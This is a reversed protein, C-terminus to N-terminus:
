QLEFTKTIFVAMQGRTVPATPCYNAGGCGATIERAVLDYIWPAFPNTCPVDGFIAAACAPPAYGPGELARLLFAAMQQRLVPDTPCYLGAGCGATIGEAVLEYIWPAFPNSCPVDAFTANTCPPPVYCLGHKAKILFVAMQQRLTPQDVGYIGGGVGTAIANQVLTTVYAYYPQDPPVDLFDAVWGNRLTGTSDDLNQVSVDTVAGAPLSPTSVTITHEDIVVVDSAVQGGFRVLAGEAFGIGTLTAATSGAPPGSGPTMAFVMRPSFESTNGLADTATATVLFGPDLTGAVTLDFSVNGSGDTTVGAHGLYVQGQEFDHPHALCPPNGYFDLTYATSPASRLSGVVRTGTGSTLASASTVIPYNQKLNPGDDGDASDNFDIGDNGNDVAYHRNEFMSNGRITIRTGFNRIGGAGPPQGAGEGLNFAVVNGEGAAVGGIQVDTTDEASLVIATYHNPLPAAGTIDTGMRNGLIRVNSALSLDIGIWNGSILNGEGPESGGILVGTVFTGASIAAYGSGLARTGTADTGMRNGQITLDSGGMILIGEGNTGSILNGEGPLAGGVRAGVAQILEIGRSTGLTRQGAADVGISNGLIRVGSTTAISMGINCGAIVNRAAASAGGIVTDDSEFLFIGANGGAALLGTPDTCVYNAEILNGGASDLAIVENFGSLAFGRITSGGATVHIGSGINAGPLIQILPQGAYGSQTTADLIAPDTVDPLSSALTITHVGPGPIAFAVTDLVGTSANSDLIAQRLSGPGSDNTNAVLITSAYTLRVCASLLLSLTVRGM